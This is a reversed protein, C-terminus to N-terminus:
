LYNVYSVVEVNDKDFCLRRYEKGQENYDSQSVWVCHEDFKNSGFYYWLSKTIHKKEDYINININRNNEEEGSYEISYNINNKELYKVYEEPTTKYSLNETLHQISEDNKNFVQNLFKINGNFDRGTEKYRQGNKYEITEYGNWSDHNGNDYHIILEEQGQKNKLTLVTNGMTCSSDIDFDKGEVKGKSEFWRIMNRLSMQPITKNKNIFSLGYARSASSIDSAMYETSSSFGNNYDSKLQPNEGKGKLSINYNYNPIYNIRDM